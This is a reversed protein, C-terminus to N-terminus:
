RKWILEERLREFRNLIDPEDLASSLERLRATLYAMDLGEGSRILIGEIDQWDRERKSVAKHIILDEPTCVRVKVGESIEVEVAREIAEREYDLGALIIDVRVSDETEVPLVHTKRVFGEPDTVLIKFRKGVQRIFGKVERGPVSVTIDIDLTARPEGWVLNGIGGIVMYPIGSELLFTQIDRLAGLLGKV